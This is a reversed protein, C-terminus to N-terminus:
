RRRSNNWKRSQKETDRMMKLTTKSQNKRLQKVQDEYAKQEMKLMKEEQREYEKEGKPATRCSAVVLLFALFILINRLPHM